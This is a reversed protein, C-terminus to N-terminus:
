VNGLLNVITAPEAYVDQGLFLQYYTTQQLLQKLVATQRAASQSDLLLGASQAMIKLMAQTESLAVLRSHLKQTITPFLLVRPICHTAFQETYGAALTLQRKHRAPDLMQRLFRQLDPFFDITQPTCAFSHQLALAEVLSGNQRLAVVDDGLYHWGAQVLRLTLTTKGSGSPGILLIGHDQQLVGNAHLGYISARRLLTLLSRLFFDRQAALPQQWFQADIVGEAHSRAIDITLSTTGEQLCLGDRTKWVKSKGNSWALTPETVAPPVSSVPVLHLTMMPNAQAPAAPEFCFFRQWLQALQAAQLDDACATALTMNNWTYFIPQNM